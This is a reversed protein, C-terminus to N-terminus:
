QDAEDYHPLTAFRLLTDTWEIARKAAPTELATSMIESCENRWPLGSDHLTILARDVTARNGWYEAALEDENLRKCLIWYDVNIPFDLGERGSYCRGGIDEWHPYVHLELPKRQVRQPSM